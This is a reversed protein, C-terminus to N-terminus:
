AWALAAIGLAMCGAGALRWGRDREGFLRGGVLAVFLMSIERAPAVHSLPARQAAHLVLIYGLPSIAAVVLAPRWQRRLADAFGARDHLAEPLLFPVRLLNSFYDVVVPSLMLVKVSYGDVVTYLAILAGTAAGWGIGARTRARQAPDGVRQWLAPGGAILVIGACIALLGALSAATPVEGLVVAAGATTVLPGSGRAVPYVVTLDSERYGRLLCRFYVLHALASAAVMAWALPPWDGLVPAAFWAGVPAWLVAVGLSCLLAFHRGGGSHKAALNWAAHLLAAAIVLALATASM